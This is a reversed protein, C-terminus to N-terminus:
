QPVNLKKERENGMKQFDSQLISPHVRVILDDILEIGVQSQCGIGPVKEEGDKWQWGVADALVINLQRNVEGLRNENRNNRQGPGIVDRFVRGKKPLLIM